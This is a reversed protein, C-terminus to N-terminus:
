IIMEDLLMVANKKSEASGHAYVNMTTSLDLHGLLEQVDKPKAGSSILRTTFAHRLKHFHFGELWEYRKSLDTCLNRVSEPKSYSGDQRKCVLDLPISDQKEGENVNVCYVDYFIRNNAKTKICYSKRYLDGYQVQQIEVM